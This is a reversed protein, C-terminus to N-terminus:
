RAITVSVTIVVPVLARRAAPFRLRAPEFHWHRIADAARVDVDERLSRLVCVGKVGGTEDILVEAIVSGRLGSVNIGSLDPAFDLTKKPPDVDCGVRCAGPANLHCEPTPDTAIPSEAQRPAQGCCAALVGLALSMGRWQCQAVRAQVGFVRSQRDRIV